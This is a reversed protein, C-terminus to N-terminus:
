GDGMFSSVTARHVLLTQPRVTSTVTTTAPSLSLDHHQKNDAMDRQFSAASSCSMNSVTM